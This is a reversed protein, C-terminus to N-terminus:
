LARVEQWVAEAIRDFISSIAPNIFDQGQVIGGHKTGHGYQLLIVIPTGSKTLHSNTWKISFSSRSVDTEYGWSNATLGSDKPTAAALAAVGQGGYSDLIAIMKRVDYNKVFKEINNFDGRHKFVVGM